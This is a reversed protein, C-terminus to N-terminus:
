FFVAIEQVFLEVVKPDFQRGAQERIYTLAEEHSWAARYPRDSILADYVDIVAFVRAPLPIQEGSLGRPYGSGDWREHHCYPIDIAPRLYEIEELMARAHEPHRRMVVWEDDTLPGPKRLIADPVVLKGIDHLLAGRRVHVLDEEAVGLAAALRVTLQTVRNTHGMTEEDRMELAMSWGKLTADYAVALEGSARQIAEFLQANAVALSIQHSVTRCLDVDGPHFTRKRGVTHVILAGLAEGNVAMPAFIASRLNASEVVLRERESLEEEAVDNVVVPELDCLCRSLHPHDDLLARRHEEPMGSPLPPTGARLYLSGDELLYIVGMDMGLVEVAGEIATQLVVALELSSALSSSVELLLALERHSISVPKQTAVRLPAREVRM